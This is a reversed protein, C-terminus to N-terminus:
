PFLEQTCLFATVVRAGQPDDEDAPRIRIYRNADPDPIRAHLHSGLIIPLRTFWDQPTTAGHVPYLPQEFFLGARAGRALPGAFFTPGAEAGTVFTEIVLLTESAATCAGTDSCTETADCVYLAARGSPIQALVPAAWLSIIAIGAIMGLLSPPRSGSQRLAIKM